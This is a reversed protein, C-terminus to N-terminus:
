QAIARFRQEILAFGTVADQLYGLLYSLYGALFVAFLINKLMPALDNAHLQPTARALLLIALDSILLLVVAPGAIVVALTMFEALMGFIIATDSANIRPLYQDLPWVAYSGYIISALRNLGGAAVFLAGAALHLLLATPSAQDHSSPDEVHSEGSISRQAEILEGAAQVAWFPLSILLGIIMGILFEKAGHVGYILLNNFPNVRVWELSVAYAPLGLGIATGGRVAGSVKVRTMLPLIAFVGLWRLAGLGLAAIHAMLEDVLAAIAAFTSL